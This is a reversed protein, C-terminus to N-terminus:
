KTDGTVWREYWRQFILAAWLARGHDAIGERHEYLLNRLIGVQLLNHAGVCAPDFMRDVEARLSTNILKGVPVSFGKKRRTVISSPLHRAAVRKLLRKTAMGGVHLSNPTSYAFQTLTADLFPCRAELGFAMTARDVKVLLQDRLYTLYDLRRAGGGSTLQPVGTDYANLTDGGGRALWGSDLGFWAAHREIWPKDVAGVFRKLMYTLPVPGRSAPFKSAARTIIGRVLEPARQLHRAWIHAPYTPYGGFLEDAGEGTLVVKLSASAERALLFTPLVAPDSIPEAIRDTAMLYAESLSTADGIIETHDTQFREAVQRAHGSEDFGTESFKVSFTPLGKGLQRSALATVLSSDVGGSLFVGIGGTGNLQRFVSDQVLRDLDEEAADATTDVVPINELDWYRRTRFETASITIITGAEVRRIDSFMTNPELVFGHRFYQDVAERNLSRSVLPHLLLTQVESGVLVINGILTFFLPKEGARDRMLTLERKSQDWAALAFQGELEEPTGNLFVPVACEIDSRSKFPYRSFKERITPANYIEGNGVLVLNGDPSHFPQDARNTPDVIRLRTAGIVATQTAFRGASDPGRHRVSTEMLDALHPHEIPAGDLSFVGYVGCM